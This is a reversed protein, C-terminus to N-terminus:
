CRREIPATCTWGWLSITLFSSYTNVFLCSLLYGQWDYTPLPFRGEPPTFTHQCDLCVLHACRSGKDVVYHIVSPPGSCVYAGVISEQGCKCCTWGRDIMEKLVCEEGTCLADLTTFYRTGHGSCLTYRRIGPMPNAKSRYTILPHHM